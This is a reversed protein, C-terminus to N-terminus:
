PTVLCFNSCLSGGRCADASPLASTNTPNTHVAAKAASTIKNILGSTRDAIQCGPTSVFIELPKSERLSGGTPVLTNFATNAGLYM